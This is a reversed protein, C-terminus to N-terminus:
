EGEKEEKVRVERGGGKGSEDNRTRTFLGYEGDTKWGDLTHVTM